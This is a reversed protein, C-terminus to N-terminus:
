PRCTDASSGDAREVCLEDLTNRWVAVLGADIPEEHDPTAAALENRGRQSLYTLQQRMLAVDQGIAAIEQDRENVTVQTETEGRAIDRELRARGGTWDRMYTVGVVFLVFILIAWKAKWLFAMWDFGRKAPTEGDWTSRAPHSGLVADRVRAGVSGLAPQLKRKWLGSIKFSWDGFADGIIFVLVGIGIFIWLGM